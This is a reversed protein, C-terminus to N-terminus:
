PRYDVTRTRIFDSKAVEWLKTAQAKEIATEKREPLDSFFDLGTLLEIKDVTTLFRTHDYEKEFYRPGIQPYIFSLVDLRSGDEKVVIKFLAEPIAVPLEGDRDGLFAYPSDDGCIPGTIVWVEGYRQAWAATTKELDLWIEGNFRSRQPVANLLTHTNWDAALGMRAAIMKTCLHGRVFYDPYTERFGGDSMTHSWDNPALGDAFLQDDTFWPRPRKRVTPIRDGGEWKKIQYSVWEPVGWAEKKGDRNDDDGGDFLVTFVRFERVQDKPQTNLRDHDYSPGLVFEAPEDSALALVTLSFFLLVCGRVVVTHLLLNSEMGEM